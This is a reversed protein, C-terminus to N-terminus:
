RAAASERLACSALADDRRAMADHRDSSRRPRSSRWLRRPERARVGAGEREHRARSAHDCACERARRRGRRRHDRPVDSIGAAGIGADSARAARNPLGRPQRERGSVRGGDTEDSRASLSSRSGAVFLRVRPAERGRGDCSCRAAEAVSLGDQEITWARAGDLEHDLRAAVGTTIGLSSERKTSCRSVGLAAVGIPLSGQEASDSSSCREVRERDRVCRAGGIFPGSRQSHMTPVESRAHADARCVGSPAAPEPDMALRSARSPSKEAGAPTTPRARVSTTRRAGVHHGRDEGISSLVRISIGIYSLGRPRSESGNSAPRGCNVQPPAATKTAAHRKSGM